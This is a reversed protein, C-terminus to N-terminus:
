NSSSCASGGPVREDEMVLACGEQQGRLRPSRTDRGQPRGAPPLFHALVRATLVCAPRRSRGGRDSHGGGGAAGM